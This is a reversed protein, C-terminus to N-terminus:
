RVHLVLMGLVTAVLGAALYLASRCFPKNWWPRMVSNNERQREEHLLQAVLKREGLSTACDLARSTEAYGKQPIRLKFYFQGLKFHAYFNDPELETAKELHELAPYIRNDLAYAIGLAIHADAFDPSVELAQEFHQAAERPGGRNLREIGESFCRRAQASLAADHVRELSGAPELRLDKTAESLIITAM